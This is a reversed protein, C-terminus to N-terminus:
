RGPRGAPPPPLPLLAACAPFGRGPRGGGRRRRRAPRRSASRRGGGAAARQRGGGGAATRRCGGGDAPVGVAEGGAPPHPLRARPRAAGVGRRRRRRRRCRRCRRAPAPPPTTRAAAAAALAARRRAAAATARHACGGRCVRRTPHGLRATVTAGPHPSAECSKTTRAVREQKASKPSHFGTAFSAPPRTPPSVCVRSSRTCFSAFGREPAAATPGGWIRGRVRPHPPPHRTGAWMERRGCGCMHVAPLRARPDREACVGSSRSRRQWPPRARGGGGKGLRRRGGPRWGRCHRPAAAARERRRPPPSAAPL